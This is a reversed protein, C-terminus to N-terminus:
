ANPIYWNKTKIMESFQKAFGVRTTISNDTAEYKDFSKQSWGIQGLNTLEFTVVWIKAAKTVDTENKMAADTYKYITDLEHKLFQIQQIYQVQSVNNNAIYNLLNTKRGENPTKKPNKWQALGYAGPDKSENLAGPKFRSEQFLSGMVGAIGADGYGLQKKLEEYILKTDIQEGNDVTGQNTKIYIYDCSAYVAPKNDVGKPNVVIPKVDNVNINKVVHGGYTTPSKTILCVAATGHYEFHWFENWGGKGDRLGYPIVFGYKWSNNLLWELAPNNKVKFYELNQQMEILTGDKKAMKIDVAIGWQHNSIGKSANAGADAQQQYTRYASTIEGYYREKNMVYGTFGETKMWDVWATLMEKLPAVAETLLRNKGKNGSIQSRIGSIEPIATMTINKNSGGDINSPVGDNQSITAVIPPVSGSSGVTGTTSSGNASLNMSDLIGMYFDAGTLLETKQYRVRSGSFVTSMFNPKISHKVRTIMYAGHFMPINNLQFHMMPQIMANGMMEVEAKYSRVAYVNFINQGGLSVNNETGKHAINDTIKLSEDTESFESQDLTIDKFINQNQQSYNVSFIAVDNEYNNSAGVFDSPIKTSMNGNSDCQFDIGDSPYENDGYDLHKSSDGAYVSVFSPGCIGDEIAEDYNPYTDFMAKLTRPDKYNIFTPLPIFTFHNSALLQSVADFMSTNPSNMLYDNVPVPDMYFLEGIDHFSRDLFRFSDILRYKSDGKRHKEKSATDVSSKKGGCQYIINDVNDVSGLWKDNINKCTKYLQFKIAETDSTGFIEQEKQKEDELIANTSCNAKLIEITKKFYTEFKDVTNYLPYYYKDVAQTTVAGWINKNGNAIVVEEQIMNLIINAPSGTKDAGDKYELGYHLVNKEFYQSNKVPVLSVYKDVNLLNKTILSTPMDQWKGADNIDKIVSYIPASRQYFDSLTGDAIQSIENLDKFDYTTINTNNGNGLGNELSISNKDVFNFFVKKFEEKVQDPLGTLIQLHMYRHSKNTQTKYIKNINEDPKPQVYDAYKEGNDYPQMVKNDWKWIIPDILGSGGGSIVGNQITPPTSESRWILGGIYAAWLKPVHIFGVRQAFLNPIINSTFPGDEESWPLSNLFLLAKAYIPYNSHSQSYFWRNGFLSMNRSTTIYDPDYFRQTLFPYSMKSSDYNKLNLWNKNKNKYRNGSEKSINFVSASGETFFSTNPPNRNLKSEPNYTRVDYEVIGSEDSTGILSDSENRFFVYKLPLGDIDDDPWEMDKFEQIGWPGGFPNFGADTLQKETKINEKLSAFVMKPTTTNVNQPKITTDVNGYSNYDNLTFIKLYTAGDLGKSFNDLHSYNSLFVVTDPGSFEWVGDTNKDWKGSFGDSIPLIKESYTTTGSPFYSYYYSDVSGNKFNSIIRTEVDNIKGKADLFDSLLLNSLALKLNTDEVSHIMSLADVEAMSEIEKTSLLRNNTLFTTGRIVLLNRIDDIGNFGNKGIRKYPYLNIGLLKTDIPNIPYWINEAENTIQMAQESAKAAEIFGKLLDDIFRIEDVDTPKDLIKKPKLQGLYKEVYANSGNEDTSQERYGPWPLIQTDNQSINKIDVNNGNDSLFKPKLQANRLTSKDIWADSSVQWISEMFVEVATTFVEIISRVTPDFHLKDYIALRAKEGLNQRATQREADLNTRAEDISKKAEILRWSEFNVTDTVVGNLNKHIYEEVAYDKSATDGKILINIDNINTSPLYPESTLSMDFNNVNIKIMSNENFDLLEKNMEGKYDALIKDRKVADGNPLVVFNYIETTQTTPSVGRIDMQNCFRVLIDKMNNLTSEKDDINALEVADVDNASLQKISENIRAIALMLQDLDLIKDLGASARATNVLAYKEKGIKTYPIAKLYGILMDSLMAYTFGIFQTTIEFNGTQSNFKSNFKYMHLCYEVPLGYYGKVTLKFLPYPLQFFTAYKNKGNSINAENQFIASGRVDIFNITILPAQQSNFDIDISTIGLGEGASDKTNDDLITTLDTYNTTLVRKGNIGSGDIFNINIDDQTKFTNNGNNATLITRGKKYTKLVVSITLDENNVPINSSSDRGGFHNPDIVSARGSSCGIRSNEM